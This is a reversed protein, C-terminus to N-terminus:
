HDGAHEENLETVLHAEFLQALARLAPQEGGHPAAESAAERPDPGHQRRRGQRAARLGRRIETGPSRSDWLPWAALASLFTNDLTALIKKQKWVCCIYPLTLCKVVLFCCWFNESSTM